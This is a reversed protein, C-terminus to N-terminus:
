ASSSAPDVLERGEADTFVWRSGRRRIEIRRRHVVDHHYRCLLIGNDVSTDGHDRTWHRVHHCESIRPPATCGPFQCHRDRAIIADRRANTFVRQARGVDLVESGPGFIIRNVEGDCALKDLLRRSIPIGDEFQPGDFVAQPTMAALGPLTRGEEAAVARDAADKFAEYSVLVTIRPRTAKGTGARVNDIVDRSLDFLAHARRQSATRRDDAAPVPTIAELATVLAEGHEPTLWGAVHYGDMTRDVTLFERQCAEVYGRDDADPDAAAAWRGVVRRFTDVPTMAAQRVLFAENIPSQPDALVACRQETTTASRALVRAHEVTIAGSAAAAATLPLHDRLARGLQVQTKAVGASIELAGVVWGKMSGARLSWLGDAEVVPLMQAEAVELRSVGRALLVAAAAAQPGDLDAGARASLAVLADVVTSFEVFLAAVEPRLVSVDVAGGFDGPVAGDPLDGDGGAV